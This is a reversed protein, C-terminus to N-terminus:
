RKYVDRDKIKAKLEEVVEVIKFKVEYKPNSTVIKMEDEELVTDITAESEAAPLCMPPFMVCWWNHGEGSGIVIRLANYEGAPLTVGDYTRTNFFEKSLAVQVDYNYGNERITERAINELREMQSDISKEAALLDRAGDFIDKGEALVADRVKLKLGQDEESDSNALIHLRLVESRIETCGKAFASFNSLGLVMSFVLTLIITLEFKKM